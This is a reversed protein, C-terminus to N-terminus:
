CRGWELMDRFTGYKVTTGGFRAFNDTLHVDCVKDSFQMLRLVLGHEDTYYAYWPSSFTDWINWLRGSSNLTMDYPILFFRDARGAGLFAAEVITGKAVGKMRVFGDRYGKVEWPMCPYVGGGVGANVRGFLRGLCEVTNTGTCSMGEGGGRGTRYDVAKICDRLHKFEVQHLACDGYTIVEAYYNAIYVVHADYEIAM